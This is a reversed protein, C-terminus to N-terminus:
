QILPVWDGLKSRILFTTFLFKAQKVSSDWKSPDAFRDFMLTLCPDLVFSMFADQVKVVM